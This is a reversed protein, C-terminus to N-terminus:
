IGSVAESRVREIADEIRMKLNLNNWLWTIKCGGGQQRPYDEGDLGDLLTRKDGMKEVLVDELYTGRKADDGDIDINQLFWIRDSRWVFYGDPLLLKPNHYKM